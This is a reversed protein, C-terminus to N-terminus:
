LMVRIPFFTFDSLCFSCVRTWNQLRALMVTQQSFPTVNNFPTNLLSQQDHEM